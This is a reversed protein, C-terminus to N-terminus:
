SALHHPNTSSSSRIKSQMATMIASERKGDENDWYPYWAEYAEIPSAEHKEWTVVYHKRWKCRESAINRSLYKALYEKQVHTYEFVFM